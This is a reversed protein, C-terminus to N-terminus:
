QVVTVSGVMWAHFRCYYGFHGQDLTSTDLTWSQGPQVVTDRNPSSDFRSAAALENDYSTAGARAFSTVTHAFRNTSPNNFLVPDGRKVEVHFPAYGWWGQAPDFRTAASPADNDYMTVTPSVAAATGVLLNGALGIAMVALPLGVLSGLRIGM